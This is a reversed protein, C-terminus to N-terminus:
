VKFGLKELHFVANWFPCEGVLSTCPFHAYPYKLNTFLGKVMIAVVSKALVPSPTNDDEDLSQEFRTLHNNIEGLDVFGILKGTFKNYVLDEKVHIEDILLCVLKHFAPSTELNAAQFLQHDVEDPEARVAHSYDRLTRQSPLYICGSQRLTEYAKSSQHKLYLCWRIMLPHWRMGKKSSCSGERILAERQQSWFVSKFSEEHQDIRTEEEMITQLDSSTESDLLVGSTEILKSLKAKLRKIKM